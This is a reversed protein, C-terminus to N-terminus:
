LTLKDNTQTIRTNRNLTCFQLETNLLCSISTLTPCVSTFISSEKCAAACSNFEAPSVVARYLLFIQWYFLEAGAPTPAAIPNGVLVFFLTPVGLDQLVSKWKSTNTKMNLESSHFIGDAANWWDAAATWSWSRASEVCSHTIIQSVIILQTLHSSWVTKVDPAPSPPPLPPPLPPPPPPTTVLVLWCLQWVPSWLKLWM